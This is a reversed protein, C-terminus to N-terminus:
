PGNLPSLAQGPSLLCTFLSEHLALDMPIHECASESECLSSSNQVNSVCFKSMDNDIKLRSLPNDRM